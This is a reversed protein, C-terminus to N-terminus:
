VNMRAPANVGMVYDTGVFMSSARGSLHGHHAEPPIAGWTADRSLVSRNEAVCPPQQRGSEGLRPYGDKASRVIPKMRGSFTPCPIADAVNRDGLDGVGLSREAMVFAALPRYAFVRTSLGDRSGQLRGAAPSEPGM